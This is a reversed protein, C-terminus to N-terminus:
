VLGRNELNSQIVSLKRLIIILTLEAFIVLATHYQLGTSQVWGELKMISDNMNPNIIEWTMPENYNSVESWFCM